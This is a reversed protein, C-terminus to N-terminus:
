FAQIRNANRQKTKGHGYGPNSRSSDSSVSSRHDAPTRGPDRRCGPATPDERRGARAPKVGERTSIEYRGCGSSSLGRGRGQARDPGAHGCLAPQREARDRQRGAMRVPRDRDCERRVPVDSLCIITDVAGDLIDDYLRGTALVAIAHQNRFINRHSRNAINM